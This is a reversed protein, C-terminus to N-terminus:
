LLGYAKRVVWEATILLAFLLITLKSDWLPEVVDDPIRVSRDKIRALEENLRDLELVRGNTAHAIRELLVARTNSPM